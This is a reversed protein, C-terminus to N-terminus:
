APYFLKMVPFEGAKNIEREMVYVLPNFWHLSITIQVLWKYFMDKRRYHTLEHLIIYRFETESIEISPMMICPRFFGILLPSSLLPNVCLEVARKIRVQEEIVSMQDLLKIDTVPTQSAKVYRVFNQYVTIKHLFLIAAIILWPLWLNEMFLALVEEIPSVTLSNTQHNQLEQTNTTNYNSLATDKELPEFHNSSTIPAPTASLITTDMKEFISGILTTEPSFPLLLRAIVVLWIYYQWRKSVTNKLFFKCFFLILISLSGSLSLSLIIKLINNM